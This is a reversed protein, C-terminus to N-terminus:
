DRRSRAIARILTILAAGSAAAVLIAKVPNEQTFSIVSDSARGTADRFQRGTDRAGEAFSQARDSLKRIVPKSDARLDEVKGSMQDAAKDIARKTERIAGQIGSAATDVIDKGSNAVTNSPTNM